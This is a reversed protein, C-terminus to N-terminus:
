AFWLRPDQAVPYQEFDMLVVGHREAETRIIDNLKTVRERFTMGLPNIAAVKIAGLLIAAGLPPLLFQWVSVGSARLAVLESNRNLRWFSYMAGFLVAFPLTKQATLPLKY